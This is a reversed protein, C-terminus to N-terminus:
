AGFGASGRVTPRMVRAHSKGGPKACYRMAAEYRTGPM